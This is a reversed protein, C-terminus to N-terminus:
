QSPTPMNHIDGEFEKAVRLVEDFSPMSGFIMPGRMAEYDSHWSATQGKPPVLQLAGPHFTSYDVWAQRFFMERHEVVRDFLARDQVARAAVGKSILCWVDYYHRALREEVQLYALRQDELSRKLFTDM